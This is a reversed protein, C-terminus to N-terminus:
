TRNANIRAFLLDDTKESPGVEAEFGCRADQMLSIEIVRRNTIQHTSFM